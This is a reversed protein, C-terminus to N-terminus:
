SQSEKSSGAALAAPPQTDTQEACWGAMAGFILATSIAGPDPFGLAREGLTRAKGHRAILARTAEMGDHAADAAARLAQAVADGCAARERLADTAPALADLMTKDGVRAGGRREIQERAAGFHAALEAVGLVRRSVANRDAPRFLLGFVVGSAGGMTRMLADSTTALVEDATTADLARLREAAAGFGRAMGLGHDGDGIRRDAEGLMAESAVVRACVDLLMARLEDAAIADPERLSM